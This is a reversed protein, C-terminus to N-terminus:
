NATPQSDAKDRPVRRSGLAILMGILVLICAGAALLSWRYGEFITSFTMAIIPILVSSYAAKAPGILRITGFYLTFAVASAMISLYALGALYPFTLEITPPGAKAWALLANVLTAWVMGWGLLSAMPLAAARRSAQMVNAVSACLVGALTLGVGIVTASIAAPDARAEQVFLLAVGTLAVVSGLVFRTSVSNGLFLRGLVANPVILLAFVVAVLGSTVHREAQYVFNFNFVFQAIGFAAAFAHGRRDLGIPQGTLRAYGLMIIGAILFRYTVSWSPDVQGLQGRIIIWTSGWILTVIAFPILVRPSRMGPSQRSIM